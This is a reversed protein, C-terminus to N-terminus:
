IDTSGRSSFNGPSSSCNESDIWFTNVLTSVSSSVNSFSNSVMLGCSSGAGGAGVPGGSEPGLTSGGSVASLTGGTAVSVLRISETFCFKSSFPGGQQLQKDRADLPGFFLSRLQLRQQESAILQVQRASPVKQVLPHKPVKRLAPVENHRKWTGPAECSGAFTKKKKKSFRVIITYSDLSLESGEKDIPLVVSQNPSRAMEQHVLHFLLHQNGKYGM